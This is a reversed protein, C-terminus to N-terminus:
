LVRAITKGSNNLIFVTRDECGIRSFVYSEDDTTVVVLSDNEELRPEGLYWVINEKCFGAKRIEEEVTNFNKQRAYLEDESTRCDMTNILKSRLDGVSFSEIIRSELLIMNDSGKKGIQLIM